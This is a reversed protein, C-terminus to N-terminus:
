ALGLTARPLLKAPAAATRRAAAGVSAPQLWALQFRDEDYIREPNARSITAWDPLERWLASLVLAGGLMVAAYEACVDLMLLLVDALLEPVEALLKALKAIRM